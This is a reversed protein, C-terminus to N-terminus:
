ASTNIGVKIIKNGTDVILNNSLNSNAISIDNNNSENAPYVHDDGDNNTDCSSGYKEDKEHSKHLLIGVLFLRM